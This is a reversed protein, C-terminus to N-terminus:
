IITFHRYKIYLIYEQIQKQFQSSTLDGIPHCITCLELKMRLRSQAQHYIIDYEKSCKDCFCRFTKNKSDYDLVNVKKNKFKEIINKKLTLRKIKKIKEIHEPIQTLYKVSWKEMNNKERKKMVDSNQLPM